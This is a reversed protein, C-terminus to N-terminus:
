AYLFDAVQRGDADTEVIRTIRLQETEGDRRVATVIQGVELGTGKVLWGRRPHKTWTVTVIGANVRAAQSLNIIAQNVAAEGSRSHGHLAGSIMMTSNKRISEAEARVQEPDLGAAQIAQTMDYTAM